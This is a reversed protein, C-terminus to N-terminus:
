FGLRPSTGLIPQMESLSGVPTLLNGQAAFTGAAVVRDLLPRTEIGKVCTGIRLSAVSRVLGIIVNPSFTQNRAQGLAAVKVM